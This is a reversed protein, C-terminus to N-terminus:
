PSHRPPIGRQFYEVLCSEAILFSEMRNDRDFPRTNIEQYIPEDTLMSSLLSHEGERLEAELLWTRGIVVRNGEKYKSMVLTMEVNLGPDSGGPVLVFLLVGPEDIVRSAADFRTMSRYRNELISCKTWGSRKLDAVLNTLRTKYHPPHYSGFVTM